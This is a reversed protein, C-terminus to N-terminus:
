GAPSHREDGTGPRHRAHASFGFQGAGCRHRTRLRWEGMTAIRYLEPTQIAFRVYARGQARLADVASTHEGAARRMELDLKRSTVRACRTWCRTRTTSICTSRRRLSAWANRWRASRCPGPTGPKWCCTPRRTWSKTACCTAPGAPPGPAVRWKTSPSALWHADGVGRDPAWQAAGVGRRPEVPVAEESPGESIGFRDHLWALPKPAWWNWRGMVHM